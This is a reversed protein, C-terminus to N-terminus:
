EEKTGGSPKNIQALKERMSMEGSSNAQPKVVIDAVGREDDTDGKYVFYAIVSSVAALLMLFVICKGITEIIGASYLEMFLCNLVCVIGATPLLYTKGPRKVAQFILVSVAITMFQLSLCILGAGIVEIAPLEMMEIVSIRAAEAEATGEGFAALYADLGQSNISVAYLLSMLGSAIGYGMISDIIRIGVGFLLSNEKRRFDKMFMYIMLYYGGLQLLGHLIAMVFAGVAANELFFNAVPPMMYIITDIVNQLLMNIALYTCAGIFLPGIRMENKKKIWIALIIPLGIGVVMNFIMSAIMLTSFQEM